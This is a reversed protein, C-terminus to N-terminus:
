FHTKGSRSLAEFIINVYKLSSFALIMVIIVLIVLLYGLCVLPFVKVGLVECSGQSFNEGKQAFIHNRSCVITFDLHGTVFTDKSTTYINVEFLGKISACWPM